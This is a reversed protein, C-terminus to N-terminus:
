GVEDSVPPLAALRRSAWWAAGGALGALPVGLLFRQRTRARARLHALVFRDGAAIEQRSLLFQRLREQQEADLRRDGLRVADRVGALRAIETDHRAVTRATEERAARERPTLFATEVVPLRAELATLWVHNWGPFVMLVAAAAFLGLGVVAVTTWGARVLSARHRGPSGLAARLALAGALGLGHAAVIAAGTPLDAVVSGVLGVVTAGTGVAWGVLLRRGIAESALAGVLAPVVLYTFVLLVGAVRVSSTVVVAFSAYFAADWARAVPGAPLRGWSLDLFRRRALWHGVGIAGYLGALSAVEGPTVALINGVLLGKVREAGEPARDLVLVAVAAAMVYVVGILAEQPVRPRRLRTMALLVAGGLAFALSYFYAAGGQPPHGALTAIAAGLAAIQALALDVFIVGRALVHLGLYAHIGTLILGAACAPWLFSWLASVETM